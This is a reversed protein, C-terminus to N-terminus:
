VAKGWGMRGAGSVSLWMGGETHSPRSGEWPLQAKQWAGGMLPFMPGLSDLVSGWEESQLGLRHCRWLGFLQLQPKPLLPKIWLTLVSFPSLFAQQGLHPSGPLVPELEAEAEAVRPGLLRAWTADQGSSQRPGQHTVYTGVSRQTSSPHVYHICRLSDM